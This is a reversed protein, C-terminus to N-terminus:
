DTLNLIEGSAPHGTSNVVGDIRGYRDLTESVLAQLDSEQTVSGTLGFGGLEKALAEAKGSPSMLAVAYGRSALERACAAGMGSGAATVIAVKDASANGNSEVM